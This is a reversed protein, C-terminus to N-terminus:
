ASTRHNPLACRGSIPPCPLGRCDSIPALRAYLFRSAYTTLALTGHQHNFAAMYAALPLAFGVGLAALLLMARRWGLPLGLAVATVAAPALLLVGVGRVTAATGLALGAALLLPAGPRRRWLLLLCAGLLLAEFVVDSMVYQELALQMSDLLLPATALAALWPWVRLRLLLLYIAAAMAPGLLHQVLSISALGGLHLQLFPWLFASYGAPRTAHLEERTAALLYIRSDPFLLAPRYARWTM